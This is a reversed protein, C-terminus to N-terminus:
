LKRISNRSVLSSPFVQNGHSPNESLLTDVASRGIDQIPQQIASIEPSTILSVGYLDFAIVSIDDPIRLGRERIIQYAGIALEESCAFVLSVEPNRDLIEEMMQRGCDISWGADKVYQSNFGIGSDAIARMYGELRKRGTYVSPNTIIAIHRHGQTIAYSIAEYSIAENDTIIADIRQCAFYTQFHKRKELLFGHDLPEIVFMLCKMRNWFGEVKELNIKLQNIKIYM